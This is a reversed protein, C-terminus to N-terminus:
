AVYTFRQFIFIYPSTNVLLSWDATVEPSSWGAPGGSEVEQDPDPYEALGSFVKNGLAEKEVCLSTLLSGGTSVKCDEEEISALTNGVLLLADECGEV